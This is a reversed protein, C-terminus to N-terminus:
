NNTKMRRQYKGNFRRSERANRVLPGEALFHTSLNREKKGRLIKKKLHADHYQCNDSFRRKGQAHTQLSTETM